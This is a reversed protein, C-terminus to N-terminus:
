RRFLWRRIENADPSLSEPLDWITVEAGDPNPQYVIRVFRCDQSSYIPKAQIVTMGSTEQPPAAAIYGSMLGARWGCRVGRLLYDKLDEGM